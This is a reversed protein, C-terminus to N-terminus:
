CETYIEITIYFVTWRLFVNYWFYENDEKINKRVLNDLYEIQYPYIDRDNGNSTNFLVKLLVLEDWEASYTDYLWQVWNIFHEDANKLIDSIIRIKAKGLNKFELDRANLEEPTM